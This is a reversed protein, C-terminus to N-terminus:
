IGGVLGRRTIPVERSDLEIVGDRGGGGHNATESRRGHVLVLLLDVPKWFREGRDRSVFCTREGCGGAVRRAVERPITPFGREVLVGSNEIDSESLRTPIVEGAPLNRTAFIPLPLKTVLSPRSWLRGISM